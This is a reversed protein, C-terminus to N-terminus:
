VSVTASTAQTAAHALVSPIPDATGTITRENTDTFTLYSSDQPKRLNGLKKLIRKM